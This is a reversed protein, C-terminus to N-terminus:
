DRSPLVSSSEVENAHLHVLLVFARAVVFPLCPWALALSHARITGHGPSYLTSHVQLAPISSQRWDASVGMEDELLLNSHLTTSFLPVM